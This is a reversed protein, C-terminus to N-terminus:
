SATALPTTTMDLKNRNDLITKKAESCTPHTMSTSPSITTRSVQLWRKNPTDMGVAKTDLMETTLPMKDANNMGM